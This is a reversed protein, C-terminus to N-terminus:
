WHTWPMAVVDYGAATMAPMDDDKQRGCRPAATALVSLLAHLPGCAALQQAAECSALGSAPQLAQLRACVTLLKSASTAHM